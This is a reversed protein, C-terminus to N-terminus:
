DHYNRERKKLMQRISKFINIFTQRHIARVKYLYKEYSKNLELCDFVQERLIEREEPCFDATKNDVIRNVEEQIEYPTSISIYREETSTINEEEPKLTNIIKTKSHKGYAEELCKYYVATGVYASPYQIIDMRGEIIKSIIDAVVEYILEEVQGITINFRKNFERRQAMHLGLKILGFYIEVLDKDCKTKEYREQLKTIHSKRGM